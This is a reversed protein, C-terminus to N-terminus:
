RLKISSAQHGLRPLLVNICIRDIERTSRYRELPVVNESRFWRYSGDWLTYTPPYTIRHRTLLCRSLRLPTGFLSM